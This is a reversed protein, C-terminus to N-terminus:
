VKPSPDDPGETDPAPDTSDGTGEGTPPDQVTGALTPSDLMVDDCIVARDRGSQKAHYMRQDAREVLVQWDGIGDHGREALGISATQPTGDPRLGFGNARLREVAIRGGRADTGPMVVLFEEGGWRIIIDQRRLTHSLAQAAKRLTADGEEHGYVDNVSKFHDLDIFALCLSMSQREAHRFQLDLLEEGIRRTFARTLGDRATQGVLQSMFHLQSMGSLVAVLGILMLLWLAAFYSAFPMVDFDLATVLGQAVVLPFALLFGEAATIPFVALGAVMVFPLFAYGMAVIRGVESMPGNYALVPNVIIFFLTPILLLLAISRIAHAADAKTRYGLALYAFGATAALRLGALEGWTPWTFFYLDFVIWIPTLIAFLGAVMRVRSIILTARRRQLLTSLGRPDLLDVFEHLTIDGLVQTLLTEFLSKAKEVANGGQPPQHRHNRAM